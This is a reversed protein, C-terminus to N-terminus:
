LINDLYGVADAEIPNYHSFADALTDFSPFVNGNSSREDDWIEQFPTVYPRESMCWVYAYLLPALKLAMDYSTPSKAVPAGRRPIAGGNSASCTGTTMFDRVFRDFEQM